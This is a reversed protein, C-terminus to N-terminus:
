QGVTCTKNYKQTFVAQRGSIHHATALQFFELSDIREKGTLLKYTEILDERLRKTELTTLGLLQLWEDYTKKNSGRVLKTARRRVQELCEIDKRLYPSWARVSYEIHPTIYYNYLRRFDEIDVRRFHRRTMGLVSM